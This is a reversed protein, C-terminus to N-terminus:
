RRPPESRSQSALRLEHLQLNCLALRLMPTAAGVAGGRRVMDGIIHEAETPGGAEMDKRMSATFTSTRDSFMKRWRDRAEAGMPSGSAAAVAACEDLATLMASEGVATSLIEGVNARTVTTVTALAALMVFKDWMDQRIHESLVTKFNGKRLEAAIAETRSSSGGALEGFAVVALSGNHVIHGEPSLAVGIYCTGGLVRERGFRAILKDLHLLGNLLPLVVSNPGMAPAIADIAADLDYAKATLLVVDYPARIGGAVVTKVPRSIDGVESKVVLGQRELVERRKPRVLFTVDAGGEALRGGVYGGIAGAGLILLRM